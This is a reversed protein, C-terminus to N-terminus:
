AALTDRPAASSGLRVRRRARARRGPPRARRRGGAPGSLLAMKALTEAELATAAIAPGPDRRDVRAEGDGPRDPPARLGQGLALDPELHRQHRGGRHDPSRRARARTPAPAPDRDARASPISDRRRRIDGGADVAFSATTTSGCRACTPPSARASAASTSECGPPRRVVGREIDVSIEALAIAAGRCRARAPRWPSRTARASAPQQGVCSEAYGARELAGVLTPDVLGGSGAAAWLAAQVATLLISSAAFEEEASANM